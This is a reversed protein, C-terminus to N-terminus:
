HRRLLSLLVDMRPLLQHGPAQVAALLTVGWAVLKDRLDRIERTVFGDHRAELNAM